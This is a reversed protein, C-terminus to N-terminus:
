KGIMPLDNLSYIRHHGVDYKRNWPADMLFCHMRGDENIEKFTQFKDDVFWEINNKTLTDIKTEGDKVMFVPATPFKNLQLWAKTRDVGCLERKTVYAVPEFKLDTPNFLRPISLWFDDDLEKLRDWFGYEFNWSTPMPLDFKKCYHGIFDACVGDIDLGIRPIKLYNHQRDDGEPFIRYYETLFSANAMVHTIHLLGSEKDYDKGQEVLAIHRKLSAIIVSWSMGEEWNRDGYKEAGMTYVKALEKMAFPPLLDYRLKGTNFRKGEGKM